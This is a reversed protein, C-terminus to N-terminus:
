IDLIPLFSSATHLWWKKEKFLRWRGKSGQVFAYNVINYMNENWHGIGWYIVNEKRSGEVPLSPQAWCAGQSTGSSQPAVFAVLLRTVSSCCGPSLGLPPLLLKHHSRSLLGLPFFSVQRSLTQIGTAERASHLCAVGASWANHMQFVEALAASGKSRSGDPFLLSSHHCSGQISNRSLGHLPSLFASSLTLRQCYCLLLKGRVWRWGFWSEKGCTEAFWPSPGRAHRFSAAFYEMLNHEAGHFKGKPNM